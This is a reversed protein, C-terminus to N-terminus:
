PTMHQMHQWPGHGSLVMVVVLAVAAIGMWAFMKVWRPVGPSARKKLETTM